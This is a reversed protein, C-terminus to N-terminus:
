EWVQKVDAPVRGALIHLAANAAARRVQDRDGGFAFRWARGNERGIWVTGAEHGDAPGPGAVGTTSVATEAGLLRAAGAAMEAAVRPHVPGHDRMLLSDVGLLEVKVDVAYATVSGRLIQSIGPTEALTSCVLGATLSEAVAITRGSRLLAQGIEGTM